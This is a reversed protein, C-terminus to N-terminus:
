GELRISSGDSWIIAVFHPHNAKCVFSSEALICRSIKSSVKGSVKRLLQETCNIYLNLSAKKQWVGSDMTEDRSIFIRFLLLRATQKCLM